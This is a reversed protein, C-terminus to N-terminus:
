FPEEGPRLGNDNTQRNAGSRSASDNDRRETRTQTGTAFRLSLAVDDAIVKVKSRKDGTQKDQWTDETIRGQVSVRSGKSCSEVVHEALDGWCTVDIWAPDKDKGQPVSVRLTALASGNPIYRLEPDFGLNGVFAVTNDWGM